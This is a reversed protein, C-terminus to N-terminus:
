RGHELILTLWPQERLGRRELLARLAKAAAPELKTLQGTCGKAQQTCVGGNIEKSVPIFVPVGCTDCAWPECESSPEPENSM